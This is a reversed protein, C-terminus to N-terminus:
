RGGHLMVTRLWEVNRKFEEQSRRFSATSASLRKMALFAVIGSIIVGGLAVGLLTRALPIDLDVSLWYALGFLGVTVSAFALPLVIAMGIMAPRAHTMSVRLDEAALQAQLTSLTVVSGGLDGIGHLVGNVSGARGANM